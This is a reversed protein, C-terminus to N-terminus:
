PIHVRFDEKLTRLSVLTASRNVHPINIIEHITEDLHKRNLFRGIAVIDYEGTVNYVAVLEEIEALKENVTDLYKVDIQINILCTLDFGVKEPDVRISWSKIVGNSTLKQIRNSITGLSAGTEDSLERYNKQSNEQLERLIHRDKDDLTFSM